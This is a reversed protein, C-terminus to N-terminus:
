ATDRAPRPSTARRTRRRHTHKLAQASSRATGRAEHRTGRAEHRTGRAEHRTGRAIDICTKQQGSHRTATGTRECSIVARCFSATCVAM